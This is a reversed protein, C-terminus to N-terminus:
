DRKRRRPPVNAKIQRAHKLLEQEEGAKIYFSYLVREVIDFIRLLQKPNPRFGRHAAADGTDIVADMLEKEMATIHNQEALKSLKKKSGGADGIKDVTAIDLATRCGIAAVYRLDHQSATYSERLAEQLDEPLKDLWNPLARNL